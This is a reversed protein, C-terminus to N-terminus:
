NTLFKSITDTSIDNYQIITISLVGEDVNRSSFSFALSPIAIQDYLM